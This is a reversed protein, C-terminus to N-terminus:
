PGSSNPFHEKADGNDVLGFRRQRHGFDILAADIAHANFDPWLTKTFYYEAYAAQWVLFNSVRVEGGTRILLDPERLGETALRSSISEETVDDANVGERILDQVAEVIDARGGYNFALNLMLKSNNKTREIAKEVRRRLWVPLRELNGLHRLQIGTEDLEELHQDIFDRGLRFIAQVEDRPRGWNETSFGWLTLVSVGHEALREVVPRIADAGARHGEVRSLGRSEAWRGNGDMTIAVHRPIARLHPLPPVTLTPEVVLNIEEPDTPFM